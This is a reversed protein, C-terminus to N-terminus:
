YRHARQGDAGMRAPKAESSRARDPAVEGRGPGRSRRDVVTVCRAARWPVIEDVGLETLLEVALEGRDGKPLAQVVVVRPDARPETRRVSIALELGRPRIAVVTGELVSGQGDGALVTEGVRIRMVTAAHRGEAGDLVIADGEPLPDLLFLPPTM